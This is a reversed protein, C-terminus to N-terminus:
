KLVVNKLSANKERMLKLLNDWGGEKLIPVIQDERIGQIMSDGLVAVDIVKYASGQRILSYKVKLEQKKLPHNILITSAIEAREQTVTPEDYLVTDLNEFNKRIQPFAIKGFLQAFLDLFEKRQADTGKAWDDQLLAKGQEESAFLKLATLDKGYRVANVVTKIPKSVDDKPGALAVNTTMLCCAVSCIVLARFM